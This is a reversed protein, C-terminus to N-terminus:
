QRPATKDVNIASKRRRERIKLRAEERHRDSAPLTPTGDLGVREAGTAVALLYATSQTWIRLFVRISTATLAGEHAAILERGVGEALPPRRGGQPFAKPHSASLTKRVHKYLKFKASTRLKKM